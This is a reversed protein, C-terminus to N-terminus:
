QEPNKGNGKCNCFVTCKIVHVRCACINGRACKGCKCTTPFDDPLIDSTIIPLLNGNSDKEYGYETPNFTLFTTLAHKWIYCQLYARQIHVPLSSTCPFKEIDLKFNISHYSLYRLSNFSDASYSKPMFDILFKEAVTVM